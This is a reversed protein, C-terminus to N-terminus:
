IHHHSPTSVVQLYSKFSLLLSMSTTCTFNEKIFLPPPFPCGSWVGWVRWRLMPTESACGVDDKHESGGGVEKKGTESVLKLAPGGVAQAKEGGVKKFINKQNQHIVNGHNLFMPGCRM